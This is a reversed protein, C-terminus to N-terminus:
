SIYVLGLTAKKLFMSSIRSFLALAVILCVKLALSFGIIIALLYTPLDLISSLQIAAGFAQVQYISLIYISLVMEFVVSFAASYYFTENLASDGMQIIRTYLNTLWRISLKEM